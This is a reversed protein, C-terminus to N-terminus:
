DCSGGMKKEALIEFVPQGIDARGKRRLIEPSIYRRLHLCCVVGPLLKVEFLDSVSESLVVNKSLTKRRITGIGSAWRCHGLVEVNTRLNTGHSKSLSFCEVETVGRREKRRDDWAFSIQGTVRENAVILGGEIHVAFPLTRCLPVFPIPLLAYPDLHLLM